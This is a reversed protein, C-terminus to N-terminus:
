REEPMPVVSLAELTEYIGGAFLGFLAHNVLFPVGALYYYWPFFYTFTYINIAYLAIGLLAGGIIGTWLGWRHLVFAIIAAFLFSLAFHILLGFLLVRLEAQPPSQVTPVVESGLLLSANYRLMLWPNHDASVFIVNLLFFLGGALLGAWFVAGWDVLHEREVREELVIQTM